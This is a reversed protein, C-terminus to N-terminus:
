YTKKVLLYQCWVMWWILWRCTILEIEAPVSWEIDIGWTIIHLLIYVFCIEILNWATCWLQMYSRLCFAGVESVSSVNGHSPVFSLVSLLLFLLWYPLLETWISLLTFATTQWVFLVTELVTLWKGYLVVFNSKSSTLVWSVECSIFLLIFFHWPPLSSNLSRETIFFYLLLFLSPLSLSLATLSPFFFFRFFFPM